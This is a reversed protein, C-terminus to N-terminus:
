WRIFKLNDMVRPDKRIIKHGTALDIDALDDIWIVSSYIMAAFYAINYKLQTNGTYLICNFHSKWDSNRKIYKGSITTRATFIVPKFNPNDRIINLVDNDFELRKEIYKLYKNNFHNNVLTFDFDVLMLCPYKIRLFLLFILNRIKLFSYYINRM